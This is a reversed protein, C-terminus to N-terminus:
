EKTKQKQNVANCTELEAQPNNLSSSRLSEIIKQQAINENVLRENKETLKVYKITM